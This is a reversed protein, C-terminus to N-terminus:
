SLTLREASRSLYQKNPPVWLPTVLVIVLIGLATLRSVNGAYYRVYDLVLPVCYYLGRIPKHFFEVPFSPRLYQGPYYGQAKFVLWPGLYSKYLFYVLCACLVAGILFFSQKNKHLLRQIALGLILFGAFLVGQFDFLETILVLSFFLLWRLTNKPKSSIYACTYLTAAMGVAVLSKSTHHFLSFLFVCPTFLFLCTLLFSTQIDFNLARRMFHWLLLVLCVLSFYKMISLSHSFGWKSCLAMFRVDLYDTVYSLERAQFNNRSSPAETHEPDFIIKFLSNSSLFHSITVPHEYHDMSDNWQLHISVGALFIFFLSCGAISLRNRLHVM